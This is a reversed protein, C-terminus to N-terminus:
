QSSDNRAACSQKASEAAPPQKRHTVSEGCPCCSSSLSSAFLFDFTQRIFKGKGSPCSVRGCHELEGECDGGPLYIHMVGAECFVRDTRAFNVVAFWLSDNCFSKARCPVYSLLLFLLPRPWFGFFIFTNTYWGAPNVPGANPGGGIGGLGLAALGALPSGGM